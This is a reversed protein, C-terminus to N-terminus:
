IQQSLPHQLLNMQVVPWGVMLNQFQNLNRQRKSTEAADYLAIKYADELNEMGKEVALSLIEDMSDEDISPYKKVLQAMELDLEKEAQLDQIQEQLEEIASNSNYENQEAPIETNQVTSNTQTETSVSFLPHDDGLFDKLTSMLKEDQQITKIKELENDLSKRHEAFQQDRETFSKQWKEKNHHDDLAALIEEESYEKEGFKYGQQQEEKTQVQTDTNESGTNETAVSQSSADNMAPAMELDEGKVEKFSDAPQFGQRLLAEKDETSISTAINTNEM